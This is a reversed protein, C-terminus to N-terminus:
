ICYALLVTLLSEVRVPTVPPKCALMEDDDTLLIVETVRRNFTEADHTLFTHSCFTAIKQLSL